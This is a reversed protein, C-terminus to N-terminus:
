LAGRLFLIYTGYQSPFLIKTENRGAAFAAAYVTGCVVVDRSGPANRELLSGGM